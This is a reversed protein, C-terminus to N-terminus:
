LGLCLGDQGVISEIQYRFKRNVAAPVSMRRGPRKPDDGALPELAVPEGNSRFILEFGIREMSFGPGPAEGTDALRDYLIALETLVTM